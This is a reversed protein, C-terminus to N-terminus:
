SIAPSGCVIRHRRPSPTSCLNASVTPLRTTDPRGDEISVGPRHEGGGHDGPEGGGSIGTFYGGVYLWNGKIAMTRTLPVSGDNRVLSASWSPLM